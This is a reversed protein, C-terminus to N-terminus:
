HTDGRPLHIGRWLQSTGGHRLLERHRRAGAGGHGRTPRTSRAAAAPQEPPRALTSPSVVTDCVCRYRVGPAQLERWPAAPGVAVAPTEGLLDAVSTPGRSSREPTTDPSLQAELLGEDEAQMCARRRKTGPDTRPLQRPSLHARPLRPSAFRTWFPSFRMSISRKKSPRTIRSRPLSSTWRRPPRWEAPAAPLARLSTPRPGPARALARAHRSVSQRRQCVRPPREPHPLGGAAGQGM